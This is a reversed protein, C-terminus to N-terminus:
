VSTQLNGQTVKTTVVLVLIWSSVPAMALGLSFCCEFHGIQKHYEERDSSM